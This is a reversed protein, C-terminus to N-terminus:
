HMTITSHKIKKTDESSSEASADTKNQHLFTELQDQFLSLVGVYLFGFLFLFLFPIPFYYGALYARYIIYTYYGAMFLEIYPILSKIKQHYIRNKKFADRQKGVIAQKPTRVFPSEQGFLAELVAKSNSICLGIGLSSVLPLYKLKSVWQDSVEKQSCIYFSSISVTAAMFVPLDFFLVGWWGSSPRLLLAPLMLLCVMTLLLYAINNTLHFAAEMKTTWPIKSRLITPLMKLGVQISGKAWRHQQSKFAYIEAPLEAPSVVDQLFVFKWGKLQARYSLDLDETLTDHQWGGADIICARRWIGATGNFNFFRGSRNRATHEMVFHGDLFISELETLLSYDRNIHDWRSQVMGLLPDTFFDISKRIIDPSPIFDADFILIFEGKCMAMGADLAGAKFGERNERHIYHIDFGQKQYFDVKNKLIQQTEDTSDDLVQIEIKEKPYDIKTTHELLREAVYLENFIPLQITVLPFQEEEYCAVPVPKNKKYKYYLYVIMYRHLGYIALIIVLICYIIQVSTQLIIGWDM